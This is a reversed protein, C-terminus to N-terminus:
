EARRRESCSFMRNFPKKKMKMKLYKFKLQMRVAVVVVTAARRRIKHTPPPEQKIEDGDREGNCEVGRKATSQTHEDLRDLLHVGCPM